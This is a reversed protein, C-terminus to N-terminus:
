ILAEELGETQARGEGLPRSASRGDEGYSLATSMLIDAADTRGPIVSRQRTSVQRKM